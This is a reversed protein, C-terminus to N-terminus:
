KRKSHICAHNSKTVTLLISFLIFHGNNNNDDNPTISSTPLRKEKLVCVCVCVCVCM